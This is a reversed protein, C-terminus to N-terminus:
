AQGRNGCGPREAGDAEPHARAREPHEPGRRRPRPRRALMADREAEIAEIRGLRLELRELERGIQAKMNAGLARGDGTRAAELARRRDRRLPEYDGIGQSFLLGKIRHVHRIREATLTKRRVFGAGTRTRRRPFGCWSCM